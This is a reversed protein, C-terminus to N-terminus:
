FNTKSGEGIERQHKKKKGKRKKLGIGTNSKIASSRKKMKSKDEDAWLKGMEGKKPILRGKRGRRIKRESLFLSGGKERSRKEKPHPEYFRRKV